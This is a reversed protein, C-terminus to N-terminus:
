GGVGAASHCRCAPCSPFTLSNARLAICPLTLALCPLSAPLCAMGTRRCPLEGPTSEDNLDFELQEMGELPVAVLLVRGGVGVALVRMSPSHWSLFVDGASAAPCASLTTLPGPPPVSSPQSAGSGRGSDADLM